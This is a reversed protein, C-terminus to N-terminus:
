NDIVPIFQGGCEDCIQIFKKALLKKEDDTFITM